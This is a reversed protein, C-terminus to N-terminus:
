VALPHFHFQSGDLHEFTSQFCQRILYIPCKISILNHKFLKFSENIETGSGHKQKKKHM